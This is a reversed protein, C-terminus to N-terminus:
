NTTWITAHVEVMHMPWFESYVSLCVSFGGGRQGKNWSPQMRKADAQQLATELFLHPKAMGM